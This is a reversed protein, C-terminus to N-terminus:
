SILTRFENCAEAIADAGADLDETPVVPHISVRLYNDPDFGLAVATHNQVAERTACASGASVYVSMESLMRVVVESKIGDVLLGLIYPSQKVGDVVTFRDLKGALRDVFRKRLKAAQEMKEVERGDSRKVAAAFGAIGAVNHTGGREGGEHSGGIMAPMPLNKRVFLAGTGKPGFIKHASVTIYDVDKMDAPLKLFGQVWDTHIRTRASQQRVTRAVEPVDFVFGTENNVAMVSVLRTSDDVLAAVTEPALSGDKGPTVDTVGFGSRILPEKFVRISNHEM